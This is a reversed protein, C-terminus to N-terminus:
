TVAITRKLPLMNIMMMLLIMNLLNKDEDAGTILM